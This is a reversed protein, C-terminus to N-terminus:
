VIFEPDVNQVGVALITDAFAGQDDTVRVTINHNTQQEFDLLLGNAVTVEGTLNNIAFRGGANDQLGYTFSSSDPDVGTVTGLSTGNASFENGKLTGGGVVAVGSPDDNVPM